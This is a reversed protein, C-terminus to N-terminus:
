VFRVMEEINGPVLVNWEKVLRGGAKRGPVLYTVNPGVKGRLSELLDESVRIRDKLYSLIFGAKHYLGKEDFRELYNLIKQQDMLAFAEMSKLYEEVGGCLDPRRICDLFTRERDTVNIPIDDVYHVTMGFLKSALVPRYFIDQFDFPKFKKASLYYVTTFQSNVAGHLELASHFALAGTRDMARDALLYRDFEYESGAHEPPVAAYLGERVRVLYGKTTLRWLAMRATSETCTIRLAEDTTIFQGRLATMYIERQGGCGKQNM